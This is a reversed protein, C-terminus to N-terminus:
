ENIAYNEKRESEKRGVLCVMFYSFFVFLCIFSWPFCSPVGGVFLLGEFDGSRSFSLIELLSLCPDIV